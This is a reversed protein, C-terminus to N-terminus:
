IINIDEKKTARTLAVYKLKHSLKMFEHITFPERITSGQSKHITFCYAPYFFKQFIKAEIVISGEPPVFKIKKQKALLKAETFVKKDQVIIKDDQIDVIIYSQNNILNMKKNTKTAMVPTGMSLIVDQSNPDHKVKPLVISNKTQYKKMYKDNIKMRKKNTYCINVDTNNHTFDEREILPINDFQLMNFLVDDSRRCTTMAFLNGDCLEHLIMSNQYDCEIRDNVPELQNYDGVFIFKVNKHTKKIRM